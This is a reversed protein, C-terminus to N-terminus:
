SVVKSKGRLFFKILMSAITFTIYLHFILIVLCIFDINLELLLKKINKLEQYKDIKNKLLHDDWPWKTSSKKSVNTNELSADNSTFSLCM